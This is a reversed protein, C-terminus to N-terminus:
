AACSKLGAWRRPRTSALKLRNFTSWMSTYWSCPGVPCSPTKAARSSRRVPPIIPQNPTPASDTAAATLQALGPLKEPDTAGGSRVVLSIQVVPLQTLQVSDLELGKSTQARVVPPFRVDRRPGAPPPSSRPAPPNEAAVATGAPQAATQPAPQQAGGCAALLLACAARLTRGNLQPNSVVPSM